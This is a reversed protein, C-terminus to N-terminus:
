RSPTCYCPFFLTWPLGEHFKYELPISACSLSFGLRWSHIPMVFFLPDPSPSPSQSPAPLIAQGLLGSHLSPCAMCDDKSTDWGSALALLVPFPTGPVQVSCCPLRLPQSPPLATAVLKWDVASRGGHYKKKNHSGRQRGERLYENSRKQM